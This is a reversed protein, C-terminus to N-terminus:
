QGVQTIMVQTKGEFPNLMMTMMKHDKVFMLMVTQGQSASPSSADQWGQAALQERYIAAVVDISDPNTLLLMGSGFQVSM